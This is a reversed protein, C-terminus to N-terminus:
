GRPALPLREQGGRGAAGREHDLLWAKVPLGWGFGGLGGDSRVVRHCPVILPVPNRACAAGAVRAHRRGGGLEAYSRVEGAPIRRLEAWLRRMTASGEARVPLRDLATVDGGFYAAVAESIDGLDDQVHLGATPDGLRSRLADIDATFGSAVVTGGDAIASFAGCPTTQTCAQYTM